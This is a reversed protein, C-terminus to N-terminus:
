KCEYSVMAARGSSQVAGLVLPSLRSPSSFTQQIQTTLIKNVPDIVISLLGLVTYLDYSSSAM